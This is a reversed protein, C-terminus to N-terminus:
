SGDLLSRSTPVLRLVTVADDATATAAAVADLRDGDAMGGIWVLVDAPRVPLRPFTNESRDTEYWACTVVGLTALAPM